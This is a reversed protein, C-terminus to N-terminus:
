DSEVSIEADELLLDYRYGMGFDKDLAVKATVLVTQGVQATGDTTVVLDRTDETGTGDQIHLWNRGMIESLSKVVKARIKVTQGGLKESKAYLDAVTYDAPAINGFDISEDVAPAKKAHSEQILKATAAPNDGGAPLLSGVFYVRDFDRDLADSHFEQMPMQTSIRLTQGVQITTKPGAAWVKGQPTELEVYTYGGADLTQVVPGAVTGPIEAPTATEEATAQDQATCGLALWLGLFLPLSRLRRRANM